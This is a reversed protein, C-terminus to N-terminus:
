EAIRFLPQGFEVMQGNKVLIEEVTGDCEAEIENMLKMAEVIAIVQGKKVTDGVHVFADANEEPAAYFTGVLPSAVITGTKEVVPKTEAVVPKEVVVNASQTVVCEKEKKQFVLVTDGEEYEFSTLNSNSVERILELIEEHKM